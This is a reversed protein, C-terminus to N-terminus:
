VECEKNPDPCRTRNMVGTDLSLRTCERRRWSNSGTATLARDNSCVSISGPLDSQNAQDYGATGDLCLVAQALGRDEHQLRRETNEMEM